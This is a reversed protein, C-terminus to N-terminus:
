IIYVYQFVSVYLMHNYLIYMGNYLVHISMCILGNNLYM